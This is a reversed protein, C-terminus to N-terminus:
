IVEEIYNIRKVKGNRVDIRGFSNNTYEYWYGNNQFYLLTKDIVKEIEEKTLNWALISDITSSNTDHNIIEYVLFIKLETNYGNVTQYNSAQKVAVPVNDYYGYKEYRLEFGRENLLKELNKLSKM